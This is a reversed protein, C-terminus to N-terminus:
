RACGAIRPSSHGRTAAMAEGYMVTASGSSRVLSPASRSDRTSYAILLSSSRADLRTASPWQTTVPAVPSNALWLYDRPKITSATATGEECPVRPCGVKRFPTQGSKRRPASSASPVVHAGRCRRISSRCTPGSRKRKGAEDATSKAANANVAPANTARNRDLAPIITVNPTLASKPTKIWHVSGYVRARPRLGRNVTPSAERRHDRSGM